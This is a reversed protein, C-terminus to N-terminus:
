KKILKSTFVEDGQSVQVIYMGNARNSLDITGNTFNARQFVVEGLPSLVLVNAESTLGQVRFEGSSPNPYIKIISNVSKDEIEEKKRRANVGIGNLGDNCEYPRIYLYAESNLKLHSGPKLVIKNQAQVSGISNSEMILDDYTVNWALKPNNIASGNNVSKMTLALILNPDTRNYMIVDNVIFNYGNYLSNSTSVTHLALGGFSLPFQFGPSTAPVSSLPTYITYEGNNNTFTTSTKTKGRGINSVNRVVVGKLPNGMDDVVRGSISVTNSYKQDFTYYNFPYYCGSNNVLWPSFNSSNFKNAVPKLQFPSTQGFNNCPSNTHTLGMQEDGNDSYEWWSYGAAACDRTNNLSMEAFDAQEQLSGYQPMLSPNPAPCLSARFGTEGIIWPKKINDSIWKIRSKYSESGTPDSIRTGPPEYLHFSHFDVHVIGPDWEWVDENGVLGITVFQNSTAWHIADYWGKTLECIDAKTHSGKYSHIAYTPENFIDFAMITADNKFYNALEFLYNQYETRIGIGDCYKGGTLLIVKLPKNKNASAIDIANLVQEIQQFIFIRDVSTNVDYKPYTYNSKLVMTGELVNEGTYFSHQGASIGINSTDANKRDVGISFRITNFGLDIIQEFDQVLANHCVAADYCWIDYGRAPYIQNFAPSNIDDNLVSRVGYNLVMPYFPQGDLEFKKNANLRVFENIKSQNGQALLQGCFSVFLLVSLLNKKSIM